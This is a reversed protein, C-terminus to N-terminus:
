RANGAPYFAPKIIVGAEEELVQRYDRVKTYGKAISDAHYGIREIYKALQQNDFGFDDRLVGLSVSYMFNTARAYVYEEAKKMDSKSVPIRRSNVKRKKSMSAEGEEQM